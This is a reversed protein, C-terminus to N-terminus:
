GVKRNDVEEKAMIFIENNAVKLKEDKENWKDNELVWVFREYLSEFAPRGSPLVKQPKGEEDKQKFDYRKSQELAEKDKAVIQDNSQILRDVAETHKMVSMTNAEIEGSVDKIRDMITVDGIEAAQKVIKDLNRMLALSKKRGARVVHRDVGMHELDEAICVFQMNEDYVLIYGMDAPAMVLVHQGTLEILDLHAYQCGDYAIGKKGVRRTVSEGLLLDLMRIDPISEVPAVQSNWKKIPSTKIGKHIRQEYIKDSWNDVWMQLEDATLLITLELGLNEKKLKWADRWAKKEADTKKSQENRWKEQSKIKDAFSKRAQIEARQAVNHGIFGPIQEFLERSLTGFVREVHPKCEGSFPPVIVMNIGLNLCVTEFHNSTYDKGNDIVVNEPIGMKLISKRLLQSISYSSSTESVHYVVRRTDIDIAAMVAYRKGDSCIVDAPTSDLEWYHNRYKAKESQSGYAALYKNKASDPSKSFEYLMPNKHKWQKYFNNLVDYSSMTDGFTHCMNRHVEIMVPRNAKLFYRIATDQQEQTLAKVGKKAGRTDIFAEVVNTGKAKAVQYKKLWDFLQKQSIMGLEDFDLDNKIVNNLWMMASMSNDRKLYFEILRCKLVAIRQKQPTALLYTQTFNAISINTDKKVEWIYSKAKLKEQFEIPLDYPLYGKVRKTSGEVKILDYDINKLKKGINQKTIEVIPILFAVTVRILLKKDIDM